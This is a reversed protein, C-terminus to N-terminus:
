NPSNNVIVEPSTSPTEPVQAVKNTSFVFSFLTMGVCTGTALVALQHITRDM